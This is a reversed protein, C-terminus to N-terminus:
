WIAYNRLVIVKMDLIICELISFGKTKWREHYLAGNRMDRTEVVIPNM